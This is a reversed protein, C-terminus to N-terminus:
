ITVEDIAPVSRKSGNRPRRIRHVPCGAGDGYMGRSFKNKYPSDLRDASDDNEADIRIARQSLDCGSRNRSSGIGHCERQILNAIVKIHERIAVGNVAEFDIGSRSCQRGYSVGGNGGGSASGPCRIEIEEEPAEEVGRVCVCRLNRPKFSRSPRISIQADQRTRREHVITSACSLLGPGFAYDDFGTSPEKINGIRLEAVNGDVREM